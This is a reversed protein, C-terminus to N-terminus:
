HYEKTCYKNGMCDMKKLKHLTVSFAVSFVWHILRHNLRGTAIQNMRKLEGKIITGIKERIVQLSPVFIEGGKNSM